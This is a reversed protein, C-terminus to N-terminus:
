QAIAAPLPWFISTFSYDMKWDELTQFPLNKERMWELLPLAFDGLRQAAIFRCFWDRSILIMTDGHGGITFEIALWPETFQKAIELAEPKNIALVLAILDNEPQSFHIM